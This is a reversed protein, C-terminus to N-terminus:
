LSRLVAELIELLVDNASHHVVGSLNGSHRLSRHAFVCTM